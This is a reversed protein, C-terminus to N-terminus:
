DCITSFAKGYGANIAGRMSKGAALEERLREYILVNADVAMGATLVIGAIGPLTLTTGVSCLVGLLIIINVMLAVNAVAGAVMYYVLMFAAVAIVGIIASRVGSRISDAGLSPGVAR